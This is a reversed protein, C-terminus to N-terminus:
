VEGYKDDYQRSEMGVVVIKLVGIKKEVCSRFEVREHELVSLCRILGSVEDLM